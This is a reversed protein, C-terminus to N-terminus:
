AGEYDFPLLGGDPGFIAIAAVVVMVLAFLVLVLILFSKLGSRTPPAEDHPDM